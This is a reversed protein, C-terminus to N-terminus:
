LETKGMFIDVCASLFLIYRCDSLTKYLLYFWDFSTNLSSAFYRFLSFMYATQLFQVFGDISPVITFFHLNVVMLDFTYSVITHM